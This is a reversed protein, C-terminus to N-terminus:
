ASAKQAWGTLGQVDRLVEVRRWLYPKARYPAPLFRRLQCAKRLGDPRRQYIAAVQAANLVLPWTEPQKPDFTPDCRM